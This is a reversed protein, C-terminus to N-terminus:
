SPRGTRELRCVVSGTFFERVLPIMTLVKLFPYKAPKLRRFSVRVGPQRRVMDFFRGVSMRNLDGDYSNMIQELEQERRAKNWQSHRSALVERIAGRLQRRSFLLHCWPTYIYDYLHSGLPSFHPTFFLWIVGGGKTVRVMERLAAEPDVFHEMADNTIVTDFLGDPVPLRAADAAFFAWVFPRPTKATHRQSTAVNDISLDAGFVQSVGGEGYAVTKGGLGCGVDLVRKGQLDGHPELCERVLATGESYEWDAYAESSERGKVNPKAFLRNLHVIVSM